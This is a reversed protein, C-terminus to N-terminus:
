QDPRHNAFRPIIRGARRTNSVDSEGKFNLPVSGARREAPNAHDQEDDQVFRLLEDKEFQHNPVLRSLTAGAELLVAIHSKLSRLREVSVTLQDEFSRLDREVEREREEYSGDSDAALCLRATAERVRRELGQREREAENVARRVATWISDIRTDDSQKDRIPSRFRLRPM